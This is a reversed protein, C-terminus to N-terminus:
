LVKVKRANTLNNM